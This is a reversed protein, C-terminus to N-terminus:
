NIYEFARVVKTVGRTNSALGVVKDAQGRTVTGMLYVAGNETVVKTRLASIEADAVMMAKIKTTIWSDNSRSLFTTKGAVELENYVTKVQNSSTNAVRTAVNKLEQSPVQGVLLIVGNHSHVNIHSDRLRDDETNLNVKIVTELRGDDIITGLTRAGPDEQIGDENVQTLVPACGGLALLLSFILGYHISKM